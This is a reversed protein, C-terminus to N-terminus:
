RDLHGLERDPAILDRVRQKLVKIDPFGGDRRREWLLQDGVWIAFTGGQEAPVLAVEGLVDVFTHLLEQAMWTSRPLWNCRPCYVIKICPKVSGAPPTNVM